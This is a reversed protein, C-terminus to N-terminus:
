HEKNKRGVLYWTEMEGKGKITVKGRRECIFDDKILEYTQQTIQIKGPEGQSEMRSAINVPDGWMDYHFKQRGIVGAVVPGSNMGIRFQLRRAAPSSRLAASNSYEDPNTYVLMELAMCALAHAHDPRPTPVGSGIMYNDGITRIKELGYKDVLSDFYSFVENLLQVMEAPAMEASLPTFGVVDAFLISVAEFHDAIIRNENKLIAAIEKPLVNLLLIDTKEQEQRLLQLIQEKQNMFYTLLTFVITFIAGINMVFFSIVLWSPLNNATRVYPQLFGSIVLLALYALFWRLAHRSHTYYLLAGLPCIISWLIVASSNVFGGLTIMLFFPLLLILLLQSFRFFDYHRTVAFIIISLCSIFAYSLPILGAIEDFYLYIVGWVAGAPIFMLSGVMLSTKRLRVDDSDESNAGIGCIIWFLRRAINRM